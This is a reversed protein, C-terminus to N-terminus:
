KNITTPTADRKPRDRICMKEGISNAMEGRAWIAGEDLHPLFESGIVGSFTLFLALAMSVLGVGVTIWIHILSLIELCALHLKAPNDHLDYLSNM